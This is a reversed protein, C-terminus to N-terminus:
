KETSEKTLNNIEGVVAPTEKKEEDNPTGLLEKSADILEELSAARTCINTIVGLSSGLTNDITEVLGQYELGLRFMSNVERNHKAFGKKDKHSEYVRIIDDAIAKSDKNFTKVVAGLEVLDKEELKDKAIDVMKKASITFEIVLESADQKMKELEDWTPIVDIDAKQPEIGIVNNVKDVVEKKKM